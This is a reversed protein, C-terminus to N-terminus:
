STEQAFFAAAKKVLDAFEGQFHYAPPPLHDYTLCSTAM